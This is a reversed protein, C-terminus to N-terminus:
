QEVEGRNARDERQLRIVIPPPTPSNHYDPSMAYVRLSNSVPRYGRAEVQLEEGYNLCRYRRFFPGSYTTAGTEIIASASGDAGTSVSSMASPYSRFQGYQITAGAIPRGNRGDLVHFTLRVSASGCGLKSTGTGIYALVFASGAVAIMMQRVTFQVRPLRMTPDKHPLHFCENEFDAQGKCGM